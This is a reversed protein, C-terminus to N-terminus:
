NDFGGLWHSIFKIIATQEAQSERPCIVDREALEEVTVGILKALKAKPLHSKKALVIAYLGLEQHMQMILEFDANADGSYFRKEIIAMLENGRMDPAIFLWWERSRLRDKLLQKIQKDDILDIGM